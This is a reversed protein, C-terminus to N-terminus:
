VPAQGRVTYNPQSNYDRDYEQAPLQVLRRRPRIFGLMIEYNLGNLYITDLQYLISVRARATQKGVLLCYYRVM